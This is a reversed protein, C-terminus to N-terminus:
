SANFRALAERTDVDLVAGPADVALRVVRAGALLPQAGRDGEHAEASAFLSRGILVPHAPQGDVTPQVAQVDAKFAGALRAALGHPVEPMDGLFVFAGETTVAVASLGARLSSALGDSWDSCPAFRLRATENRDAAFARAAPTVAPDAGTVVVVEDVPAAFAAALAGDLLLGGRWPTSLKAGGFRRGAGAALVIASFRNRQNPYQIAILTHGDVPSLNRDARWDVVEGGTIPLTSAAPMNGLSPTGGRVSGGSGVRRRGQGTM